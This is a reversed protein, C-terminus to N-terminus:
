ANEHTHMGQLQLTTSMEELSQQRSEVWAQYEPGGDM